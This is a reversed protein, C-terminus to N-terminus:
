VLLSEVPMSVFGKTRVATVGGLDGLDLSHRYEDYNNVGRGCIKRFNNKLALYVCSLRPWTVIITPGGARKFDLLNGTGKTFIRYETISFRSLRVMGLCESNLMTSIKSQLDKQNSGPVVLTAVTTAARAVAMDRFAQVLRQYSESRQSLAEYYVPPEQLEPLRLLLEIYKTNKRCNGATAVYSDKFHMMIKVTLLLQSPLTASVSTDRNFANSAFLIEPSIFIARHHKEILNRIPILMESKLHTSNIGVSAPKEPQEDGLIKLLM